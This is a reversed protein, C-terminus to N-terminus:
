ELPLRHSFPDLTPIHRAPSSLEIENWSVNIFTPMESNKIYYGRIRARTDQPAEKVARAVQAPDTVRDM